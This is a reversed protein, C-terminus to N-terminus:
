RIEYVYAYVYEYEAQVHTLAPPAEPRAGALPGTDVPRPTPSEAGIHEAVSM